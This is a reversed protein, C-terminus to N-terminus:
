INNEIAELRQNLTYSELIKEYGNQAIRKRENENNIFKITSGALDIMDKYTIFEEGPIFEEYLAERYDTILFGGMGMIQLAHGYIGDKFGRPTININIITDNIVDLRQEYPLIGHNIVGDYVIEEKGYVHVPGAKTICKAAVIRDVATTKPYFCYEAYCQMSDLISDAAKKVQSNELLDKMVYEPLNRSFFDYGYVLNQGAIMGEMYGLTSDRLRKAKFLKEWSENRIINIISRELNKEETNSKAKVRECREINVGESLYFINEVGERRFLEAVWRDAVFLRNTKCLITSSYLNAFPPELSWSVYIKNMVSCVSAICPYYDLSFLVDIEGSAIKKLLDHDKNSSMEQLLTENSDPVEVIQLLHGRQEMIELVDRHYGRTNKLYLINM